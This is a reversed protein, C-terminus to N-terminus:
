PPSGGAAGPALPAVQQVDMRWHPWGPADIDIWAPFRIGGSGAPPGFRYHTGHGDDIRVPRHSDIDVWLSPRNSAEFPGPDRGGLVWCDSSGDMGLDVQDPDAGLAVLGASVFEESRAQLLQAPPLLRLTHEVAAGNRTVKYSLPTREHVESGGDALRLELRATGGPDLTAHGTAAVQGAQNVLAVEVGLPQARGASANDAAVAGRVKAASPIAAPAAAAALAIGAALLAARGRGL